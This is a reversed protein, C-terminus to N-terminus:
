RPSNNQLSDNINNFRDRSSDSGSLSAKKEEAENFVGQKIENQTQRFEKELQEKRRQEEAYEAELKKKGFRLGSVFAFFCSFVFIVFVGLIIYGIM